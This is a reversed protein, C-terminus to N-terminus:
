AAAEADILVGDVMRLRRPMRSALDLNHTVVLLATGHEANIRDFLAHIEDSTRGDLNGTPEDALLLAPNTSLARALAVRQQEGGSLEGPRHNMRESLGVQELWYSAKERAAKKTVRAILQPMMVNELASFVPLLHHFQFMFGISRNRFNALQSASLSLLDQGRFNISGSTPRDLAGLVHLLTSKGAGSKGIVAIRDAPAIILDVGCLVDLQRGQHEFSKTLGSVELLPQTM